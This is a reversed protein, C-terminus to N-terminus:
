RLGTAQILTEPLGFPAAVSMLRQPLHEAVCVGIYYGLRAGVYRDSPLRNVCISEHGVRSNPLSNQVSEGRKAHM